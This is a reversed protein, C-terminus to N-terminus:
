SVSSDGINVLQCRSRHERLYQTSIVHDKVTRLTQEPVRYQSNHHTIRGKEDVSVVLRDFRVHCNPCLCLVNEFVDPGYHPSGLPKIHAAEAYFGAPTKIQERCFQCIHNHMEKVKKGIATSRVIRQTCVAVRRPRADPSSSVSGAGSVSNSCFDSTEKELEFRWIRFGDKGTDPWYRTVYFVGCYRYGASPSHKPDGKAGRTVRVPLGSDCSIALALNGRKLEQHAIQRGGDNGGHGTYIIMNGYDEDDVYGGSVVISDCGESSSGSIGAQLPRHVGAEGLAKRNAFQTGPRVGPVEGFMRTNMTACRVPPIQARDSSLSPQWWGRNWCRIISAFARTFDNTNIVAYLITSALLDNGELKCSGNNPITQHSKKRM